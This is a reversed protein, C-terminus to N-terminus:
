SGDRSRRCAPFSMWQYGKELKPISLLRLSSLALDPSYASHPILEYGNQEVADMAIKCTYVRANDQQLLIGKSFKGRRKEVSPQQQQQKTTKRGRYVDLTMDPRDTLRVVSKRPLSLGGLRNVLVEHM